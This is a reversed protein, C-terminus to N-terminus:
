KLKCTTLYVKVTSVPDPGDYNVTTTLVRKGDLKTAELVDCTTVTNSVKLGQMTTCIWCTEPEDKEKQCSFLIVILIFFLIKKM